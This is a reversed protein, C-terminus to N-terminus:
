DRNGHNRKSFHEVKNLNCNITLFVFQNHYQKVWIAELTSIHVTYKLTHFSLRYYHDINMM